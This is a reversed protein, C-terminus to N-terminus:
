DQSTSVLGVPPSIVDPNGTLVPLTTPHPNASAARRRDSLLSELLYMAVWPGVETGAAAAHALHAIPNSANGVAFVGPRSTRGHEDTKAFGAGDVDCLSAALGSAPKFRTAIWAADCPIEAGSETSVAVLRDNEHILGTVEDGVVEIRLLRLREAGSADFSHKTVVCVKSSWMSVWSGLQALREPLGFV